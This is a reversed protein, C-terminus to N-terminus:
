LTSYQKLFMNIKMHMHMKFVVQAGSKVCYKSYSASHFTKHMVALDRLRLAVSVTKQKQFINEIFTKKNVVAFMTRKEHKSMLNKSHRRRYNWYHFRIWTHLWGTDGKNTRKLFKLRYSKTELCYPIVISAFDPLQWNKQIDLESARQNGEIFTLCMNLVMRKKKLTRKAFNLSTRRKFFQVVVNLVLVFIRLFMIKEGKRKLTIRFDDICVKRKLKLMSVLDAIKYSELRDIMVAPKLNRNCYIAVFQENLYNTTRSFKSYMKNLIAPQSCLHLYSDYVQMTSGIRLLDSIKKDMFANVEGRKKDLIAIIAILAQIFLHMNLKKAFASISQYRILTKVFSYKKERSCTHQHYKALLFKVLRIVLNNGIHKQVSEFESHCSRAEVKMTFPILILPRIPNTTIARIECYNNGNFRPIVAKITVSINFKPLCNFIRVYDQPRKPWKLLNLRRGIISDLCKNKLYKTKLLLNSIKQKIKKQLINVSSVFDLYKAKGKRKGFFHVRKVQSRLKMFKEWAIIQCSFYMRKEFVGWRSQKIVNNFRKAAVLGNLQSCLNKNANTCRIGLQLLRSQKRSFFLLAYFIKALRIQLVIFNIFIGCSSLLQVRKMYIITLKSWVIQFNGLNRYKRWVNVLSAFSKDVSLGNAINILSARNRTQTLWFEHLRLKAHRLNIINLIETKSRYPRDRLLSMKENRLRRLSNERLNREDSFWARSVFSGWDWHILDLKQTTNIKLTHAFFCNLLTVKEFNCANGFGHAVIHHLVNTYSNAFLLPLKTMQYQIFTDFFHCFRLLYDFFKRNLGCIIKQYRRLIFLNRETDIYTAMINHVTAIKIMISVPYQRKRQLLLSQKAKMARYLPWKRFELFIVEHRQIFQNSIGLVGSFIGSNLVNSISPWSRRFFLSTTQFVSKMLYVFDIRENLKPVGQLTETTYGYEATLLHNQFLALVHKSLSGVPFYSQSHFYKLNISIRPIAVALSKNQVISRRLLECYKRANNIISTYKVALQDQFSILNAESTENQFRDIVTTNALSLLPHLIDSKLAIIKKSKNFIYGVVAILVAGYEEHWKLITATQLCIMSKYNQTKLQLCYIKNSLQLQMYNYLAQQVMLGVYLILIKSVMLHQLLTKINYSNQKRIHNQLKARKLSVTLLLFNRIFRKQFIVSCYFSSIKNRFAVRRQDVGKYVYLMRLLLINNQLDCDKLSHTNRDKEPKTHRHPRLPRKMKAVRSQYAGVADSMIKTEYAWRSKKYIHVLTARKSNCVNTHNSKRISLRHLFDKEVLDISIGSTSQFCSKSLTIFIRQLFMAQLSHLVARQRNGFNFVRLPKEKFRNSTKYPSCKRLLIQFQLINRYRKKQSFASNINATFEGFYRWNKRHKTALLKLAQKTKHRTKYIMLSVNAVFCKFYLMCCLRKAERKAINFESITCAYSKFLGAKSHMAQRHKVLAIQCFLNGIPANTTKVIIQKLIAIQRNKVQNRHLIKILLFRSGSSISQCFKKRAFMNYSKYNNSLVKMNGLCLRTIRVGLNINYKISFVKLIEGFTTAEDYRRQIFCLSNLLFSTKFLFIRKYKLQVLKVIQETQTKTVRIKSMQLANFFLSWDHETRRSLLQGWCGWLSKDQRKFCIMKHPMRRKIKGEILRDLGYSLGRTDRHGNVNRIGKAPYVFLASICLKFTKVFAMDQEYDNKYDKGTDTYTNHHESNLSNNIRQIEKSFCLENSTAQENFSNELEVIMWKEASQVRRKHLIQLHKILAIRNKLVLTATQQRRAYTVAFARHRSLPGAKPRMMQNCIRYQVTPNLGCFLETRFRQSYKAINTPDLKRMRNKMMTLMDKQANKIKLDRVERFSLYKQLLIGFHKVINKRFRLVFPSISPLLKQKVQLIKLLYERFYSRMFSDSSQWYKSALLTRFQALQKLVRKKGEFNVIFTTYDVCRIECDNRGDRLTKINSTNQKHISSNMNEEDAIKKEFIDRTRKLRIRLSNMASKLHREEAEYAIELINHLVNKGRNSYEDTHESYHSSQKNIIPVPVDESINRILYKSTSVMKTIKATSLESKTRFSFSKCLIQDSYKPPFEHLPNNKCSISPAANENCMVFIKRTSVMQNTDAMREEESSELVEEFFLIQKRANRLKQQLNGIEIKINKDSYRMILSDTIIGLGQEGTGEDRHTSM